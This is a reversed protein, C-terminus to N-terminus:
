PWTPRGPARLTGADPAAAATPEAPASSARALAVLGAVMLVVAVVAVVGRIGGLHIVEGFLAIGLTSSLVPEVVTIIPLSVTPRGVQYATQSLLLAVLGVGILVYPTWSRLVHTWGLNLDHAFAKTIVAVVADGAGAALGFLVARGRASCRLGGTVVAVAVGAMVVGTTIWARAPARGDSHASPSAMILFVSVGIVVAVVAAWDARTVNADSWVTALAVTFLLSLTIIPQVVLLSGRGLAVVQLAFGAIEAAMGALWWPRRVVRALLGLRAAYAVAVNSAPRQQLAVGTGFLAASGLAVVVSLM